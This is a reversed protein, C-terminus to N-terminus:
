VVPRAALHVVRPELGGEGRWEEWGAGGWRPVPQEKEFFGPRRAREIGGKGGHFGIKGKKEGWRPARRDRGRAHRPGCIAQADRDMMEGLAEMGSALCFLEFSVSIKSLAELKLARTPISTSTTPKNM